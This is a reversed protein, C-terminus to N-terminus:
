LPLTDKIGAPPLWRRSAKKTRVTLRPEHLVPDAWSEDARLLQYTTRFDKLITGAADCVDWHVTVFASSRGLEVVDLEVIDARAAGSRAYATMLETLHERVATRDALHIARGDRLALLPAEYVASIADVDSAM